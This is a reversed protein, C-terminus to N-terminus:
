RTKKDEGDPATAISQLWTAINRAVFWSALAVIILYAATPLLSTPVINFLFPDLIVDALVPPPSQMLSVNDTFYDAAAYIRLLMLSAAHEEPRKVNPKGPQTDQDSQRSYSYAALSQILDPTSWVTDLEYVDL